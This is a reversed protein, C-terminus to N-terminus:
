FPNRMSEPAIPASRPIWYTGAAPDLKRALLDKGLLRALVAAPTFILLFLIGTVIPNTIKSLILALRMWLRNLSHLLNPAAIAVVLFVAALVVSWWRVDQHKRLPLLGVLFFFASFVFGFSRDSGGTVETHATYEEHTSGAM